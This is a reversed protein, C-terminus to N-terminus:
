TNFIGWATFDMERITISTRQIGDTSIGDHSQGLLRALLTTKGVNEQRLQAVRSLLASVHGVFVLKPRDWRCYNELAQKKLAGYVTAPNADRTDPHLEFPNPLYVLHRCKLHHALTYPLEKLRNHSCDITAQM